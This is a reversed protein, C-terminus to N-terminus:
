GWPSYKTGGGSEEGLSSRKQGMNTAVDMVGIPCHGTVWLPSVRPPSSGVPVAQSTPLTAAHALILPCLSQLCHGHARDPLCLSPAPGCVRIPGAGTSVLPWLAPAIGEPITPSLALPCLSPAIDMPPPSPGNVCFHPCHGHANPHGKRASSALGPSDSPQKCRPGNSHGGVMGQLLPRGQCGQGQGGVALTCPLQVPLVHGRGPCLKLSEKVRVAFPGPQPDGVMAQQQGKLARSNPEDPVCVGEALCIPQELSCLLTRSVQTRTRMRDRVQQTAKPLDWSSM